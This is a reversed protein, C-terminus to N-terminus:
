MKHGCEPCFKGEVEAGCEPCKQAQNQPKGCEPCFKAT